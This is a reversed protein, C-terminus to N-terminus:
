KEPDRTGAVYAALSGVTRFASRMESFAADSRWDFPRGLKEESYDELALLLSVLESSKVASNKGLLRTDADIEDQRLTGFAALEAAIFSVVDSYASIDRASERSDKM